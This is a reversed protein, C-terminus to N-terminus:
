GQVLEPEPWPDPLTLPHIIELGDGGGSVLSALNGLGNIWRFLLSTGEQDGDIRSWRIAGCQFIAVALYPAGLLQRPIKLDHSEGRGENHDPAFRIALCSRQHELM